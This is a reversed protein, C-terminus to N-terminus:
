GDTTPRAFLTRPFFECYEHESFWACDWPIVSDGTVTMQHHQLIVIDFDGVQDDVPNLVVHFLFVFLM